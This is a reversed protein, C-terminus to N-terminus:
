GRFRDARRRELQPLSVILTPPHAPHDSPQKRSFAAPLFTRVGHDQRTHQPGTRLAFRKTVLFPLAGPLALPSTRRATRALSAFDRAVSLAVSFLGGTCHAETVMQLFVKLRGALLGRLRIARGSASISLKVGQTSM